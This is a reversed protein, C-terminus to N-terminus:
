CEGYSCRSSLSSRLGTVRWAQVMTLSFFRRFYTTLDSTVPSTTSDARVLDRDKYFPLLFDDAIEGKVSKRRAKRDLLAKLPGLSRDRGLAELEEKMQFISTFIEPERAGGTFGAAALAYSGMAGFRGATYAQPSWLSSPAVPSLSIKKFRSRTTTRAETEEQRFRMKAIDSDLRKVGRESEQYLEAMLVLERLTEGIVEPVEQNGLTPGALLESFHEAVQEAEWRQEPPMVLMHNDVMDLVTATFVDGRRAVLRLYSHWAAVVDLVAGNAHFVNQILGTALKAHAHMRVRSYLKVGQEGLVVYTAAISFV